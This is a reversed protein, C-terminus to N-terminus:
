SRADPPSKRKPAHSFPSQPKGRQIGFLVLLMIVSWLAVAYVVAELTKSVQERNKQLIYDRDSVVQAYTRGTCGGYYSVSLCASLAFLVISAPFARKLTGGWPKWDLAGLIKDASKRLCVYAAIALGLCLVGAGVYCVILYTENRM